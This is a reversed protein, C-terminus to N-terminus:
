LPEAVELAINLPVIADDIAMRIESGAGDEDAKAVVERLTSLREQACDLLRILQERVDDTLHAMPTRECLINFAQDAALLHPRCLAYPGSM